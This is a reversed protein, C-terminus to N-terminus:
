KKKEQQEKEFDPNLNLLKNKQNELSLSNIESIIKEILPSINKMNQKVSSDISMIKGVVAGKGAKGNFKIANELAFETILLELQKEDM